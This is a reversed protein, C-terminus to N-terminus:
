LKTLEVKEESVELLSHEEDEPSTPKVGTSGDKKSSSPNTDLWQKSQFPPKVDDPEGDEEEYARFLPNMHDLPEYNNPTTTDKYNELMKANPIVAAGTSTGKGHPPVSRLPKHREMEQEHLEGQM